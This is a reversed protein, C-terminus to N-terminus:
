LARVQVPGGLDWSRLTGVPFGDEDLGVIAVNTCREPQAEIMEAFLLEAEDLSDPFALANSSELDLILFNHAEDM